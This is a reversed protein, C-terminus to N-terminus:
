ATQEISGSSLEADVGDKQIQQYTMCELPYVLVIQGLEAEAYPTGRGLADRVLDVIHPAREPPLTALKQLSTPL